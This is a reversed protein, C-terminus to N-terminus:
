WYMSTNPGAEEHADAERRQRLEESLVLRADSPFDIRQQRRGVALRCRHVLRHPVGREGLRLAHARHERQEARLDASLRFRRHGNGGCNLSTWAAESMQVIQRRHVVGRQSTAPLRSV